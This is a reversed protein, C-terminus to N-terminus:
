NEVCNIQILLCYILKGEFKRCPATLSFHKGLHKPYVTDEATFGERLADTALEIHSFFSRILLCRKLWSHLKLYCSHMGTPHAGVAEIAEVLHWDPPPDRDLPDRNPPRHPPPPHKQGSPLGWHVSVNGERLKTPPRYDATSSWIFLGYQRGYRKMRVENHTCRSVFDDVCILVSM